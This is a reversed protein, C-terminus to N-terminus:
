WGATLYFEIIRFVIFFIIIAGIKILYPKNIKIDKVPILLVKLAQILRKRNKILIFILISQYIIAARLAGQNVVYFIDQLIINILITSLFLCGILRTKKLLLMIGGSIEFIGIIVAFPKSHSYFSWMLEMSTLEGVTKELVEPNYGFQWYKAGGYVFMAMVVIWSLAEEIIESINLNKM